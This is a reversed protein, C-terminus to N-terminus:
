SSARDLARGGLESATVDDQPAHIRSCLSDRLHRQLPHHYSLGPNGVLAVAQETCRMVNATVLRKVTAAELGDATGAQVEPALGHLLRESAYILAEIEGMAARFRPLSALPAGLNSPVRQNLYKALWDRAARAVGTYVSTQMLISRARGIPEPPSSAPQLAFAHALPIRVNELVVDHSASARLGLHDWTPVVSLGPGPAAVLFSGVEVQEPIDAVTAARVVVFALAVSGTVFTKRGDLVWEQAEGPGSRRARTAPVGGRSPSGLDPEVVASNILAPGAQCREIVLQRLPEPWPTAPAVIQSLHNWHMCMVLATSADAAGLIEITRLTTTLDAGAGGLERPVTLLGLGAAWVAAVNESAFTGERDHEDARDVLDAALERARSLIEGPAAPPAGAPGMRAQEAM